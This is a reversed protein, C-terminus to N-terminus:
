SDKTVYATYIKITLIFFIIFGLSFVMIIKLGEKYLM